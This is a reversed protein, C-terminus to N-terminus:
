CLVLLYTNGILTLPQFVETRDISTNFDARWTRGSAKVTIYRLQRNVPLDGALVEGRGREGDGSACRWLQKWVMNSNRLIPNYWFSQNDRSAVFFLYFCSLSTFCVVLYFSDVGGKKFTNPKEGSSQGLPIRGSSCFKLLLRLPALSCSSFLFLFINSQIFIM